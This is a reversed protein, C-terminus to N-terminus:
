ESGVVLGALIADFHAGSGDGYGFLKNEGQGADLQDIFKAHILCEPSLSDSRLHDSKDPFKRFFLAKVPNFQVHPLEILIRKRKVLRRAKLCKPSM